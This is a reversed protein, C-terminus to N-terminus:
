IFYMIIPSFEMLTTRIAGFRPAPGRRNPQSPLTAPGQAAV